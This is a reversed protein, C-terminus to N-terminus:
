LLLLLLTALAGTYSPRDKSGLRTGFQSPLPTVAMEEHPMCRAETYCLVLSCTGSEGSMSDISHVSKREYKALVLHTTAHGLALM